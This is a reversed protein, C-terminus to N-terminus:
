GKPKLPALFNVTSKMVVKDNQNLVLTYITVLGLEPRSKSVRLGVVETDTRLVDNPRVPETWRIEEVGAGIMGGVVTITEVRMRMVLAATLWGSAAQGQFFTSKGAAEDLHFPQPDYKQAFETIEHATVKVGGNSHFKQGLQFDDFYMEKAAM